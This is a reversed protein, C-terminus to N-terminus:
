TEISIAIAFYNPKVSRICFNAGDGDGNGGSGVVGGGVVAEFFVDREKIAGDSAEVLEGNVTKVENCVRVGYYITEDSM